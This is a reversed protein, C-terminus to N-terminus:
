KNTRRNGADHGIGMTARKHKHKDNNGYSRELLVSNHIALKLCFELKVLKHHLQICMRVYWDGKMGAWIKGYNWWFAAFESIVTYM